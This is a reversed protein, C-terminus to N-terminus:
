EGAAGPYLVDFLWDLAEGLYPGPRSLLDEERSGAEVVRGSLGSFGPRERLTAESEGWPADLLLIVEPDSSVIYERSLLPWAGLDEGVINRAGVVNLLDDIYSGPGASFPTPDLEVYVTPGELGAARAEAAAVRNLLRDRLEEAAPSEGLLGGLLDVFDFLGDINEPTGAFVTVGLEQLQEHVGSYADTLVLDPELELILELNPSFGDGVRPLDTGDPQPSLSDTAVLRDGAGLELITESHSPMLSVIRLPVASLTVERDLYDRVATEQASVTGALLVLVSLVFLSFRQM